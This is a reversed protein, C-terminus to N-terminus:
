VCFDRAQIDSQQIIIVQNILYFEMEREFKIKRPRQDKLCQFGPVLHDLKMDNCKVRDMFYMQSTNQLSIRTSDM